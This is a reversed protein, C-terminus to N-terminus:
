TNQGLSSEAADFLLSPLEVLLQAGGLLVAGQQQRSRQQLSSAVRLSSLSLHPQWKSSVWRTGMFGPLTDTSGLARNYQLSPLTNKLGEPLVLM